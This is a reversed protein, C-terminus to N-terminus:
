TKMIIKENIINQHLGWKIEKKQDDYLTNKRGNQLCSRRMKGFLPCDNCLPLMKCYKKSRGDYINYM